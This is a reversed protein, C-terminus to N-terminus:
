YAVIDILAARLRPGGAVGGLIMERQQMRYMTMDIDNRSRATHLRGAADAGCGGLTARAVYFVLDEYSGDYVVARVEDIAIGDLAARIARAEDRGVIGREALMVLHA